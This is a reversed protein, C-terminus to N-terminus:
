AWFIIRASKALRVQLLQRLKEGGAAPSTLVSDSSLSRAQRNSRMTRAAASYSNKLPSAGSCASFNNFRGTKRQDFGSRSVSSPASNRHTGWPFSVWDGVKFRQNKKQATSM